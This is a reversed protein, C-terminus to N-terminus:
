HADPAGNFVRMGDCGEATDRSAVAVGASIGFQLRSEAVAKEDGGVNTMVVIVGEAAMIGPPDRGGKENELGLGLQLRAVTGAKVRGREVLQEVRQRSVRIQLRFFAAAVIKTEFLRQQLLAHTKAGGPKTVVDLIQDGERRSKRKLEHVDVPRLRM